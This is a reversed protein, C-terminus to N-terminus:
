RRRPEHVSGGSALPCLYMVGLVGDIGGDFRYCGPASVVSVCRSMWMASWSPSSNGPWAWRTTPVVDRVHDLGGDFAEFWPAARQLREAIRVYSM